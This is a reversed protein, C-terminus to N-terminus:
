IDDLLNQSDDNLIEKNILDLSKKCKKFDLNFTLKYIRYM